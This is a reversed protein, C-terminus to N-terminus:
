SARRRRLFVLGGLGLLGATAPEPVYSYTVKVEITMLPNLVELQWADPAGPPDQFQLDNVMLIPSVSFMVNGPAGDYLAEAPNYPGDAMPGYAITGFDHGDPGTKDFINDDGGDGDDAELSVFPTNTTQGGFSFVGGGSVSYQRIMRGRVVAGQFDDDNDAAMDVQGSHCITVTVDLLTRLGGMNDFRPILITKPDELDSTFTVFGDYNEFFVPGAQAAGAFLTLALAAATIRPVNRM